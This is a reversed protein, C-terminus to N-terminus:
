RSASSPIPAGRVVDITNTGPRLTWADDDVRIAIPGLSLRAADAAARVGHRGLAEQWMGDFFSAPDTPGVENMSRSRMDISM